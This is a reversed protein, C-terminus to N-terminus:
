VCISDPRSTEEGKSLLLLLSMDSPVHLVADKLIEVTVPRAGKTQPVDLQLLGVAV